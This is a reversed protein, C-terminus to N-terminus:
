IKKTNNKIFFIYYCNKSSSPVFIILTAKYSKNNIVYNLFNADICDIM